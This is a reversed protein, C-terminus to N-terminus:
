KHLKKLGKMRNDHNLIKAILDISIYFDKLEIRRDHGLLESSAFCLDHIPGTLNRLNEIYNLLEKNLKFKNYTEIKDNIIWFKIALHKGYFFKECFYPVM